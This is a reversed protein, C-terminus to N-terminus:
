MECLWNLSTGTPYGSRQTCAEGSPSTTVGQSSGQAVPEPIAHSAVANPRLRRCIRFISREASSCAIKRPRRVAGPIAMESPFPCHRVGIKSSPTTTPNPTAGQPSISCSSNVRSSAGKGEGGGRAGDGDFGGPMGLPSGWAGGGGGAKGSGDGGGGISGGGGGSGRLGGGGGDVGGADGGAGGGGERGGEGGGGEAGWLFFSAGGGGGLGPWGGRGAAGGGDGGGNRM